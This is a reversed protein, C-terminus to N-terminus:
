GVILMWRPSLVVCASNSGVWREWSEWRCQGVASRFVWREGWLLLLVWFAIFANPVNVFTRLTPRRSARRVNQLTSPLRALAGRPRDLARLAVVALGTPLASLIRSLISPPEMFHDRSSRTRLYNYNSSM